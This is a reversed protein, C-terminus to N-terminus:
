RKLLPNLLQVKRQDFTKWDDLYIGGTDGSNPNLSWYFFHEINRNMLYQVFSDQWQKDLGTYRGGFEGIAIPYQDALYGFHNDWIAPMNSPFSATNFYVQDSYVSPGYVHPALVLKNVPVDFPQNQLPILNEGYFPAYTCNEQPYTTCTNLGVDGIGEAFVLTKPDNKLVVKAAQEVFAKWEAWSSGYPENFVDIGVINNYRNTIQSLRDLDGLTRDCPKPTLHGESVSCNHIDVLIHLDFQQAITLFSEFKTAETIAEPSVPIRLANFGLEKIETLFQEISKGVWLGHLDKADSDFGFCNLGKLMIKSNDKLISKGSVSYGSSNAPPKVDPNDGGVYKLNKPALTSDGAAQFTVKESGYPPSQVTFHGNNESVLDGGWLSGIKPEFDFEIIWPGPKGVSIEGIFGDNWSEIVKYSLDGMVESPDTPAIGGESILIVDSIEQTGDGVAQFGVVTSEYEPSEVSYQMNDSQILTGGWLAEIKYPLKFEMKWNLGVDKLKIEGQFGGPWSNTVQYEYSPQVSSLTSGDNKKCGWIGSVLFLLVLTGKM